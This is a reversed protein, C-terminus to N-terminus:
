RSFSQVEAGAETRNAFVDFVCEGADNTVEAKSAQSDTSLMDRARRKAEKLGQVDADTSLEYGEIDLTTVTYFSM